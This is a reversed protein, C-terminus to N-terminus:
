KSPWVDPVAFRPVMKTLKGRSFGDVHFLAKDVNQALRRADAESLINGVRVRNMAELETRRGSEAESISFTDNMDESVAATPRVLFNREGCLEFSTSNSIPM